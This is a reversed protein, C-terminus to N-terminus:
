FLERGRVKKEIQSIIKQLENKVAIKGENSLKNIGSDQVKIQGEVSIIRVISYNNQQRASLGVISRMKKLDNNESAKLLSRLKERSNIKKEIVQARIEEPINSLKIYESVTSKSVSIAKALKEQSEFIESDILRKYSLGLEIPHLDDRHINEILAIADSNKEEKLIICPLKELGIQKAARLRREGSIVEYKGDSNKIVTLPQRIGYERISYALETIQSPDFIKRAQNKFPVLQTIDMYYYEGVAQDLGVSARTSPNASPKVIIELEKSVPKYKIKRPM